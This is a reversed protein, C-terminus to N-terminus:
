KKVEHPIYKINNGCPIHKYVDDESTRELLSTRKVMKLIEFELESVHFNCYPCKYWDYGRITNEYILEKITGM